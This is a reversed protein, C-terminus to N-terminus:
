RYVDQWRVLLVAEAELGLVHYSLFSEVCLGPSSPSCVDSGLSVM